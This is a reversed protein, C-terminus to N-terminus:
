RWARARGRASQFRARPRRPMVHM